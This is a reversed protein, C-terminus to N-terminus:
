FWKDEIKQKLKFENIRFRSQELFLASIFYTFVITLISVVFFSSKLSFINTIVIAYHMFPLPAYHLAMIDLTRRGINSLIKIDKNILMCFTIVSISGLVGTLLFVFINDFAFLHMNVFNHTVYRLLLCLAGSILSIGFLLKKKYLWSYDYLFGVIYGFVIFFMSLIFRFFSIIFSVYFNGIKHLLLIKYVYNCLISLLTIILLLLILRKIKSNSKIIWKKLIYFFCVESVFLSFLFWLPALGSGSIIAIITRCFYHKIHYPNNMIRIFIYLISWLFYPIMLRYFLNFYKYKLDINNTKKTTIAIVIGSIIFFLPMHFSYIINFISNGLNTKPLFCIAHGLVVLFIGIAKAYDLFIVRDKNIISKKDM